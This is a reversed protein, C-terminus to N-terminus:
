NLRAAKQKLQAVRAALEEADRAQPALALYSDIDRAALGYCDLAAYLIGRDRLDEASGPQIRVLLDVM